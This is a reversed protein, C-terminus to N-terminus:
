VLTHLVYGNTLCHLESATPSTRMTLLALGGILTLNAPAWATHSCSPPYKGSRGFAVNGCDVALKKAFYQHVGTSITYGRRANSLEEYRGKRPTADIQVRQSLKMNETSM